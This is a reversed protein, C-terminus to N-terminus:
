ESMDKLSAWAGSHWSDIQNFLDARSINRTPDSLGAPRPADFEAWDCSPRNDLADNVKSEIVGPQYGHQLFTTSNQRRLAEIRARLVDFSDSSSANEGTLCRALSALRHKRDVFASNRHQQVSAKFRGSILM